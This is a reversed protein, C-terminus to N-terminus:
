EITILPERLEHLPTGDYKTATAIARDFNALQLAGSPTALYAGDMTANEGTAGVEFVGLVVLENDRHALLM